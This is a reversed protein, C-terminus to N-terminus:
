INYDDYREEYKIPEESAQDHLMDMFSDFQLGDWDSMVQMNNLDPFADMDQNNVNSQHNM